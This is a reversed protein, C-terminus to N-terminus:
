TGLHERNFLPFFVLSSLSRVFSLSWFGAIGIIMTWCAWGHSKDTYYLFISISQAMLPGALHTFVYNRWVALENRENHM